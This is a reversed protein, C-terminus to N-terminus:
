PVREGLVTDTYPPATDFAALDRLDSSAKRRLGVGFNEM